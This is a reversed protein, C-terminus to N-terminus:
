NENTLMAEFLSQFHHRLKQQIFKQFAEESKEEQGYAKRMFRQRTMVQNVTGSLTMFLMVPDVNKHFVGKSIGANILKKILAYNARKAALIMPSTHEQEHIWKEHAMIHHFPQNNLIQLVFVDAVALMKDLDAMGTDNVIEELSIKIASIRHAVLAEMMKEKSGFYYSIMAVNVGAARAVMRISTGNYGHAAILAEAADLLSLAKDSLETLQPQPM